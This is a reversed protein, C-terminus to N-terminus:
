RTSRRAAARGSRARRVAARPLRVHHPQGLRRRRRAHPRRRAGDDEAAAAARRPARRVPAARGRLGRARRRQADRRLPPPDDRLDDLSRSLRVHRRAGSGALTSRALGAGAAAAHAGGHAGPRAPRARPAALVAVRAPTLVLRAGDAARDLAGRAFRSRASPAPVPEGAGPRRRREAAGPEADLILRGLEAIAVGDVMCHHMKGIVAVGGGPLEDAIWMQWLPRDRPLPTSLIGDVIADLDDGEAHLLHEAPDFAPDDVWVPEHLGLPM